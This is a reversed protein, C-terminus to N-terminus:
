GSRSPSPIPERLEPEEEPVQKYDVTIERLERREERTLGSFMIERTELDLITLMPKM